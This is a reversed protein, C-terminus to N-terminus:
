LSQPVAPGASGVEEGRDESPAAANPAGGGSRCAHMCTSGVGAGQPARCRITSPNGHDMPNGAPRWVWACAVICEVAATHQAGAGAQALLAARARRRLVTVRATVGVSCGPTSFLSAGDHHAAAAARQANPGGMAAARRATRQQVNAQVSGRYRNPLQLLLAHTAQATPLAGQKQQEHRLLAVWVGGDGADTQVHLSASGMRWTTFLWCNLRSVSSCTSLTPCSALGDGACPVHLVSRGM